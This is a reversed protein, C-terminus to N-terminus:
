SEVIRRVRPRRPRKWRKYKKMWVERNWEELFAPFDEGSKQLQKVVDCRSFSVYKDFNVLFWQGFKERIEAMLAHWHPIRHGVLKQPDFEEFYAKKFLEFDVRTLFLEFLQRQDQYSGDAKNLIKLTLYETFAENLWNLKLRWEFRFGGRVVLCGNIITQGSLAHLFEHLYTRIHDEKLYPSVYVHEREPDYSGVDLGRSNSFMTVTNAFVTDLKEKTVPLVGDAVAAYLKERVPAIFEEFYPHTPGQEGPYHRKGVVWEQHEASYRAIKRKGKPEEMLM